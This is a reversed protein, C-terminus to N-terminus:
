KTLKELVARSETTRGPHSCFLVLVQVNSDSSDAGGNLSYLWLFVSECGAYAYKLFSFDSM